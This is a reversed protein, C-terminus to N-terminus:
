VVIANVNANDQIFKWAQVQGARTGLPNNLDSQSIQYQEDNVGASRSLDFQWRYLERNAIDCATPRTVLEACALRALVTQFKSSMQGNAAPLEGARYRVRVRNPPTCLGWAISNWVSNTADYSASAPNVEGIEANQIGARAIAQYFSAPDSSSGPTYSVSAGGCCSAFSPSTAWILVAQSDNVTLGNPDAYHRYIDLTTVFNGATSPDLPNSPTANLGQYLIPRVLMWSRGLITVTGNANITKQVPAIKWAEGAAENDLRDASAFYIDINNIDTETTTLTSTATFTDNLGDGDADSYTLTVTDILTLTEKGISHTKGEKLLVTMWRGDVSVTNRYRLGTEHYTPWQLLEEVFHLSPAYRLYSIFKDEAAQIAEIIEARGAANSAQYGYQVVLDNCSSVPAISSNSLGYFHFPHYSILRRWTEIPLLTM